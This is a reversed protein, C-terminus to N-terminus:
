LPRWVSAEAVRTPEFENLVGESRVILRNQRQNTVGDAACACDSGAAAERSAPQQAAREVGPESVACPGEGHEAHSGVPAGDVEGRRGFAVAYWGCASGRGGEDGVARRACCAGQGGGCP